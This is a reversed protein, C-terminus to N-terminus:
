LGYRLCAGRVIEAILEDYPLGAKDSLIALDSWGPKLGPLPNLELFRPSGGADLRLDVRGVDRCGLARYAELAVREVEEVVPRPQRPPVCYEVQELYHEDRKVDLSYVFEERPVDLFARRVNPDRIYGSRALSEVLSQRRAAFDVM